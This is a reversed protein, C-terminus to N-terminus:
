NTLLVCPPIEPSPRLGTSTAWLTRLMSGSFPPTFDSTNGHTDGSRALLFYFTGCTHESSYQASIQVCYNYLPFLFELYELVSCVRCVCM